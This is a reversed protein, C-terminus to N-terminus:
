DVRYREAALILENAIRQKLHKPEIVKIHPGYGLIKRELEHNIIIRLRFIKSGDVNEKEIEQTHHFPKTEVYPAQKESVWLIVTEVKSDLDRTVGVMEGLYTEPDFITNRTYQHKEDKKITIIRDLALTMIINKTSMGILFWRNNFEKLIYPSIYLRSERKAKFSKYEIALAEKKKIAEFLPGLFNLGKLKENTEIFVVKQNDTQCAIKDQMRTLIDEQGSMNSFGNYHKIIELASSLENLDKQSLPLKTISYDLDEYTYYKKNKVVIPANYGLKDSRMIEIDRQITRISIGCIGEKELLEKECAERLDEL